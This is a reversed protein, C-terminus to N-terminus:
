QPPRPPGGAPPRPPPPFPSALRDVLLKQLRERQDPRLSPQLEILTRLTEKQQEARLQSVQDVLEDIKALDLPTRAMELGTQERLRGIAQLRERREKAYQDFLGQMVKRQEADLALDHAVMEVPNLRPGGPQGPQGSMGPRPPHMAFPPPAIWSRYVFGVLVFTNLLLSLGLLIQVLRSTM